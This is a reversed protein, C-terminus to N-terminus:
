EAPNLTLSEVLTQLTEMNIDGEGPDYGLDRLTQKARAILDSDVPKNQHIHNLLKNLETEEDDVFFPAITNIKNRFEETQFAANVPYEMTNNFLEICPYLLRNHNEKLFYKITLELFSQNMSIHPNRCLLLITYTQISKITEEGGDDRAMMEIFRPLFMAIEEDYICDLSNNLLSLCILICSYFHTDDILLNAILFEFLNANKAIDIYYKFFYQMIDALTQKTRLYESENIYKTCYNLTREKFANGTCVCDYLVMASTYFLQDYDENEDNYYEGIDMMLEAENYTCLDLLDQHVCVLVNFLMLVYRLTARHTFSKYLKILDLLINFEEVTNLFVHDRINSVGCEINYIAKIAINALDYDESTFYQVLIKVIDTNSALDDSIRSNNHAMNGIIEIIEKLYEPMLDIAELLVDIAGFEHFLNNHGVGLRSYTVWKTILTVFDPNELTFNAVMRPIEERLAHIDVKVADCCNVAEKVKKMM